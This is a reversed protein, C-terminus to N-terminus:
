CQDVMRKAVRLADDIQGTRTLYEPITLAKLGNRQMYNDRKTKLNTCFANNFSQKFENWAADYQIRKQAAYRRVLTNLQQQPTGELTVGAVLDIRKGLQETKELAVATQVKNEDIDNEVQQIRQSMQIQQYRIAIIPDNLLEAPLINQIINEMAEFKTVYAATFLVGKEGTMKNAIMECGKKTVLFCKYSKGTGASYSSEIFFEDIRMNSSHGMISVYGDIDRVLNDHRKDVMEAVERSDITAKNFPILQNDM